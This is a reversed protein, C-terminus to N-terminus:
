RNGDAASIPLADIVMRDIMLLIIKKANSVKVCFRESSRTHMTRANM